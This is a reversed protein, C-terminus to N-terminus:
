ASPRATSRELMRSYRHESAMAPRPMGVVRAKHTTPDLAGTRRSVMSVARGDAFRSYPTQGAGKLQIEWGSDPGAVEGLLHARGDGLQGAWVGFQHGSYVAALPDSGPLPQNGAFFQPFDPRALEAPDLGILQAVETSAAVLYPRPLPEPALRTYFSAPMRAFANDFPLTELTHM